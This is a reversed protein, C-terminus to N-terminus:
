LPTLGAAKVVPAWKAIEAKMVEDFQAPGAWDSNAGFQRLRTIVEPDQLAKNFADALKNVIPRPTASAVAIGFWIPVNFGPLGSAAVTPVDPLDPSPTAGSVALRRLKGSRILPLVNTLQDFSAHVQGALMAQLAASGGNYPVHLVEIGAMQAFLVAALQTTTGNGTSSFNLKGPNAKAWAILERVNKAPFDDRVYLVNPIQVLRGVGSFDKLPDFPMTKYVNPAVGHLATTTNLLYYGDAPRKAVYDAAVIGAAGIKSEVLVQQGLTKQLSPIFIKMLLDSPGGIAGSIVIWLPRTPWDSQQAHLTPSIGVTLLILVLLRKMAADKDL